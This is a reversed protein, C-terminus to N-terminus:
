AFTTTNQSLVNWKGQYAILTFSAGAFASTTATNVTAAGTQLLGTATLVHAFASNSTFVIQVGDDTTVTPAALSLAAASGKTIVYFASTHPDIAGDISQVTPSYKSPPLLGGQAASQHTHNMNVLSAITPTVITPSTTRVIAGTGTNATVAVGAISLSNGTGATDFTKNTLTDTTAKGVLTDTANPLTLVRTGTPTGTLEIYTSSYTGSGWLYLNRFPTATAGLDVGTQALLSTNISVTALNSLHLNAYVASVDPIDAAVLARFDPAASGGSTPGAFVYNATVSSQGALTGGPINDVSWLLVGNSDYMDFRYSVGPTMWVNARGASDLIVPNTNASAGTEDTFTNQPTTGGAIYTYLQGGANVLGNNDLWQM